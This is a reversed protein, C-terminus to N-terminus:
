GNRLLYILEVVERLAGRGGEKMTIYVAKEKVEDVANRVAVPFGVKEMVELDVLDDGIFGIEEDKLGYRMKLTEYIELKSNKGTFIDNIGLEKLRTILAKSDRGSIVALKIQMKQLVKIGLGDLVNFVKITEGHGTYYLSGDTLVGDIDMILLKLKRVRDRLAM